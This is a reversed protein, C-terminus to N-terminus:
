RLPARHGPRRPDGAAVAEVDEVSFRGTFVALRRLLLQQPETLLDHSWAISAEVTQQHAPATRGGGTLLAFRHTLRELIRQPALARVRAAALEIALPL